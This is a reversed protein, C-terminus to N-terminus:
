CRPASCPPRRPPRATSFLWAGRDSANPVADPEAQVHLNWQRGAFDVARTHVLSTAPARDRLRAPRGAPAPGVIRRQRGRVPRPLRSRSRPHRRAAADMALTVFVVGRVGARRQRARDRRRRRLDGPLRRRGDTLRGGDAPHAPVGADGGAPRDRDRRLIAARAAPISMANVGLAAANGAMPEILRIAFVDGPGSRSTPSSAARGAAAPAAGELATSSATARRSRPM